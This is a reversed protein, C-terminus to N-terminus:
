KPPSQPPLAHLMSLLLVVFPRHCIRHLSAHLVRLVNTASFSTPCCMSYISFPACFWWLVKPFVRSILAHPSMEFLLLSSCFFFSYYLIFCFFLVPPSYYFLFFLFLSIWSSSHHGVYFCGVHFLPPSPGFMRWGEPWFVDPSPRLSEPNYLQIISNSYPGM